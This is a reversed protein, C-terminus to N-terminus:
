LRPSPLRGDPFLLPLFVAPVFVFPVFSWASVWAAREGWTESGEALLYEALGRIFADLGAWVTLGALIWGIPNRRHRTAVLAGVPGAIAVYAFSSADDAELGTGGALEAVAGAVVLVLAAAAAM